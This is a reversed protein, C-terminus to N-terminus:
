LPQQPRSPKVVRGAEIQQRKDEPEDNLFLGTGDLAGELDIGLLGSIRILLISLTIMPFSRCGAVSAFANGRALSENRDFSGGSRTQMSTGDRRETSVDYKARTAHSM